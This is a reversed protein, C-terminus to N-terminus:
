RYSYELMQQVVRPDWKEIGVDKLISSIVSANKSMKEKSMIILTFLGSCHISQIPPIILSAVTQIISRDSELERRKVTDPITKFHTPQRLYLADGELREIYVQGGFTTNWENMKM